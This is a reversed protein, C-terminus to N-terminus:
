RGRTQGGWASQAEPLQLPHARRFSSARVRGIGFSIGFVVMTLSSALVLDRFGHDVLRYLFLGIQIVAAFLAIALWPQAAARVARRHQRYADLSATNRMVKFPDVDPM